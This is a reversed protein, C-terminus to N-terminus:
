GAPLQPENEFPWPPVIVHPQLPPWTHSGAVFMHQVCVAHTDSGGPVHPTMGSPHPPKSDHPHAAPWTQLPGAPHQVGQVHELESYAPVGDEHPV